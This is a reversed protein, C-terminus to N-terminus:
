STVLGLHVDGDGVLAGTFGDGEAVEVLPATGVSPQVEEVLVKGGDGGVGAGGAPHHAVSLMLSPTYADMSM